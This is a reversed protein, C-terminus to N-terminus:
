VALLKVIVILNQGETIKKLHTEKLNKSVSIPFVEVIFILKLNQDFKSHNLFDVKQSEKIKCDIKSTM